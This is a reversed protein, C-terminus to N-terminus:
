HTQTVTEYSAQDFLDPAILHLFDMDTLVMLDEPTWTPFHDVLERKILSRILDDFQKNYEILFHGKFFDRKVLVKQVEPYFKKLLEETNGLFDTLAFVQDIDNLAFPMDIKLSM